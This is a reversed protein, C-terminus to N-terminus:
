KVQKFFRSAGGEPEEVSKWEQHEQSAKDKDLYFKHANDPRIWSGTPVVGSQQDLAKAPCGEACIWNAITEKNTWHAKEPQSKISGIFGEGSRKYSHNQVNTTVKKVGDCRCEDLHQLILNAPWRGNESGTVGGKWEGDNM